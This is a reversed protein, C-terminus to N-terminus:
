RYAAAQLDYLEAYLGRRRMLEDHSGQEVIRGAAIVLILDALRVTSFRHSVLLTVAGRRAGARAAGALRAVLAHEAPADLAAAPENFLVLLPAPRMAARALALRQWQGGSLEVGGPWARGLPTELGRPLAAALG